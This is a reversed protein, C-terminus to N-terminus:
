PTKQYSKPQGEIEYENSYESYITSLESFTYCDHYEAEYNILENISIVIDNETATYSANTFYRENAQSDLYKEALIVNGNEMLIFYMQDIDCYRIPKEEMDLIQIDNNIYDLREMSEKMFENHMVSIKEKSVESYQNYSNSLLTIIQYLEDSGITGGRSAVCAKFLLSYKEKVQSFNISSDKEKQSTDVWTIIEKEKLYQGLPETISMYNKSTIIQILEDDTLDLIYKIINIDSCLISYSADDGFLYNNFWATLAEDLFSVSKYQDLSFSRNLIVNQDEKPLYLNNLMHLGEHNYSCSEDDFITIKHKNVNFKASIRPDTPTEKHEVSLLKFNEYLSRLDVTPAKEELRQVLELFYQKEQQNLNSNNYIADRVDSFDVTDSFYDDLEASSSVLVEQMEHNELDERDSDDFGSEDELLDKEDNDSTYEDYSDDNTYEEEYSPDATSDENNQVEAFPIYDPTNDSGCGSLVLSVGAVLFMKKLMERNVNIKM